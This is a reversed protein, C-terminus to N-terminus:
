RSNHSKPEPEARRTSTLSLELAKGFRLPTGDVQRKAEELAANDNPLDKLIKDIAQGAILMASSRSYAEGTTAKKPDLLLEWRWGPSGAMQVVRYEIGKYEM